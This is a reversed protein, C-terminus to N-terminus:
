KSQEGKLKKVAQKGILELFELLSNAQTKKTKGLWRELIMYIIVGLVKILEDWNFEHSM